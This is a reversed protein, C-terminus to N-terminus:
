IEYKDKFLEFHAKSIVQAQLILDQAVNITGEKKIMAAVNLLYRTKIELAQDGSIIGRKWGLEIAEELGKMIIQSRLRNFAERGGARDRSESGSSRQPVRYLSPINPNYVIKAGSASYRLWTHTDEHFRAFEPFPYTYALSTRVNLASPITLTDKETALTIWIDFGELPNDTLDHLIIKLGEILNDYPVLENDENIVKFSSYVVSSEPDKIFIKRVEAVRTKSAIDDSDLFCIFPCNDLYAQRISKNRAAGPGTNTDSYIIKIKKSSNELHSLYNKASQSTSADDTIYIKWNNDTQEFISTLSQDLYKIRYSKGDSWFPIVFAAPGTEFQQLYNEM